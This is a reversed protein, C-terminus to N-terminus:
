VEISNLFDALDATRYAIHHQEDLTLVASQPAICVTTMGLLAAPILNIAMDEFFASRLPDIDLGRILREFSEIAPKAVFESCRIDWIADILGTLGRKELVREAHETTGNTFVIRRGPLKELGARLEPAETLSSLDIRHAETLFEEADIHHHRILGTLSTGYRNYYQHQLAKAEDRSLHLHSSIYDTMRTDIQAFVADGAPYLTNDLDFIWNDVGSFDAVTKPVPHLVSM